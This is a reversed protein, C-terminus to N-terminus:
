RIYTWRAFSKYREMSRTNTQGTQNSWSYLLVITYGNNKRSSWYLPKLISNHIQQLIFVYSTCTCNNNHNLITPTQLLRSCYHLYMKFPSYDRFQYIFQLRRYLIFYSRCMDWLVFITVWYRKSIKSPIYGWYQTNTFMMFIISSSFHSYITHNVLIEFTYIKSFKNKSRRNLLM